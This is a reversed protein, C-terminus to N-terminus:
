KKEQAVVVPIYRFPFHAKDVSAQKSLSQGILCDFRHKLNQLFSQDPSEAPCSNADTEFLPPM